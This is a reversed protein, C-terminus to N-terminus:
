IGAKNVVEAQQVALHSYGDEKVLICMIGSTFYKFIICTFLYVLILQFLIRVSFSFLPFSQEIGQVRRVSGQAIVEGRVGKAEQIMVFKFLNRLFNLHSVIDMGHWRVHSM